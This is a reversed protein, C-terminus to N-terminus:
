EKSENDLSPTNSYSSESSNNQSNTDNYPHNRSPDTPSTIQTPICRSRIIQSPGDNEPMDNLNELDIIIRRYLPNNAILWQLAHQVVERRVIYSHANDLYDTNEVVLSM